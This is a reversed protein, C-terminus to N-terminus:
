CRKKIKCVVASSCIQFASSLLFISSVGLTAVALGSVISALGYSFNVSSNFLGFMRGRKKKPSAESILSEIAPTQMAMAIGSFAEVIYLQIPTNVFIYLLSGVAGIIGGIVIFKKKGFKDSLHGFPLELLAVVLWFIGLATSVELYGGDIQQSFLSYVPAFIGMGIASFINALIVVLLEKRM